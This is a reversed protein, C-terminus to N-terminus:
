FNSLEVCAGICDYGTKQGIKTESTGDGDGNVLHCEYDPRGKLIDDFDIHKLRAFQLTELAM